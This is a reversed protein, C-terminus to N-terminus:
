KKLSTYVAEVFTDTTGPGTAAGYRPDYDVTPRSEKVQALTMGKAIVSQVRDRIITMVDRYKTSLWTMVNEHSIVTAADVASEGIDNVVNGGAITNGKKALAENGGASFSQPCALGAMALVIASLVAPQLNVANEKEFELSV